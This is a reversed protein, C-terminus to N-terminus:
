GGRGYLGSTRVIYFKNMIWQIYKEGALKSEGYVNLPNAADFPTYPKKKGATLSM